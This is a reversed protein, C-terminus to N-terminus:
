APPPTVKGAVVDAIKANLGDIGKRVPGPITSDFLVEWNLANQLSSALDGFIPLKKWTREGKGVPEINWTLKMDLRGEVPDTWYVKLLGGTVEMEAKHIFPDSLITM